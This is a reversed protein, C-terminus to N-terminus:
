TPTHIDWVSLAILDPRLSCVKHGSTPWIWQKAKATATRLPRRPSAKSGARSPQTRNGVSPSARSGRVARHDTTEAVVASPM